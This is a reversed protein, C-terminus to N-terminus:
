VGEGGRASGEWPPPCSKELPRAEEIFSAKELAAVPIYSTVSLGDHSFDVFAYGYDDVAIVKGVEGDEVRRVTVGPGLSRVM